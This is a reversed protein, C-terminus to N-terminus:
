SVREWEIKAGIQRLTERVPMELKGLPIAEPAQSSLEIMVRVEAKAELLPRIVGAVFDSLRNWPVEAKLQYARFVQQPPPTGGTPAGEPRGDAPKTEPREHTEPELSPPGASQGLRAQAEEPRLVKVEDLEIQDATLPEGFYVRGGIEVGFVKQSVGQIVAEVLVNPGLLIPLHPYRLYTYYVEQLPKEKEDSQFTHELIKRPLLKSALVGHGKLGEIVREALSKAKASEPMGLPIIEVGDSTARALHRYASLLKSVLGAEAEKKLEQLKKIDKEALSKMIRKDAEVARCALLRRANAHAPELEHEDPVLVLLANRFTRFSQGSRGIIDNVLNPTNGSTTAYDPSLIALKLEPTDPVDQPQRPWLYTRLERGALKELHRRFEEMVDERSIQGEKEILMAILNPSQLFYYTGADEHLYWLLNELRKATDGVLAPPVDPWLAAVRLERLNIGRNEGVSFSYFFIAQAVASAFRLHRFESGMREDELRARAQPGAIDCGIVAEYERGIVRLLESRVAPKDLPIHAPLILPYSARRDYLEKVVLALFRLVGRTRQFNSFTSWREFLIDVLAPHFPYAKKIRERYALERAYEPVDEGLKKYMEFFEQAVEGIVRPAVPQEFLRRRIVEFIEDGEVPNKITEVRAFIQQLQRLLREGDEGYPASSPLTVVMVARPAVKVVETLEHFFAMLQDAYSKAKVAFEVIEDMLILVPENGILQHLLDKGPSVQRQDHYEMLPYNGLQHALEGWPTRGKLADAATGVFVVMRAQPISTTNAKELVKAVTDHHTLQWGNTLLHYLAILSHTKGGGFPTQIQIVPEGRGKGALRAVVGALLDVLGATPFTKRFFTQADRYEEPGRGAVVDSLDAAFVSEDLRGELIDKHPTVIEYWAKM